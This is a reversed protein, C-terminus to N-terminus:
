TASPDNVLARFGPPVHGELEAAALWTHRPEYELGSADCTQGQTNTVLENVAIPDAKAKIPEKTGSATTIEWAVDWKDKGSRTLKLTAGDEREIEVIDIDDPKVSALEEMLADTPVTEGDGTFTFILLVVGIVLIAGFLIATLRFNM